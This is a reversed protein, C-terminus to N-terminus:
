DVLEFTGFRLGLWLLSHRGPVGDAAGGAYGLRRQLRAYAAVTYTGFSGDAWREDLLGLKVLAQEVLLVEARYTTAGQKGGPDRRAAAILHKLSVTPKAPPKPPAPPTPTSPQAQSLIDRIPFAGPDGHLNEPVHQHGCHGKFAEWKAASMRVGNSAGYSDPYAKFNLGSTLPVGHEDHAWAAFAALDRVVWGPLEPTYLHPTDGWKEHTKPDCTGVLEVQCVNLTNTEAGGSKNVLARASRDMDFHQYWILKRAKFDPVATLNPASSGGGYSPLSTGETTHWVVVNTEM